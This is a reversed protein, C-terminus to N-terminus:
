KKLSHAIEAKEKATKLSDGVLKIKIFHFRDTHKLLHRLNEGAQNSHVGAYGTSILISSSGYNKLLESKRIREKVFKALENLKEIQNHTLKKISNANKSAKVQILMIHYYNQRRKVAFIDAPSKSGPTVFGDFGLAKLKKLIFVEGKDGTKRKSIEPSGLGSMGMGENNWIYVTENTFSEFNKM